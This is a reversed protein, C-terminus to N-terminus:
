VLSVDPSVRSTNIRKPVEYTSSAISERTRFEHIHYQEVLQNVAIITTDSPLPNESADSSGSYGEDDRTPSSSASKQVLYIAASIPSPSLEHDDHVKLKSLTSIADYKNHVNDDSHSLSSSSLSSKQKNHQLKNYRRKRIIMAACIIFILIIFIGLGIPIIIMWQSQLFAYIFIETHNTTLELLFTDEYNYKQNLQIYFLYKGQVPLSLKVLTCNSLLQFYDYIMTQYHCYTSNFLDISSFEKRNMKLKKQILFPIHGAEDLIRIILQTKIEKNYQDIAKLNLKYISREERNFITSTYLDGLQSDIYFNEQDDISYFMNQCFENTIKNLILTRNSLNEKIDLIFNTQNFYCLNENPKLHFEYSRNTWLAPQDNDCSNLSLYYYDQQILQSNNKTSLIYISETILGNKIQRVFQIQFHETDNISLSLNTTSEDLDKLNITALLTSNANLDYKILNGEFLVSPYFMLNIDPSNDNTNLVHINIESFCPAITSSIRAEITLKYMTITEYDLSNLLVLEGTSSNLYFTKSTDGYLEYQISLSSSSSSSAAKVFGITTNIPASESINFDYSNHEFSLFAANTLCILLLLRLLIM